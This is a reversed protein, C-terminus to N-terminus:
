TTSYQWPKKNYYTPKRSTAATTTTNSPKSNQPQHNPCIHKKKTFVEWYENTSTNWYIRTGCNYSCPKPNINNNFSSM